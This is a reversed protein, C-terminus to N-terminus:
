PKDAKDQEALSANEPLALLEQVESESLARPAVRSDFLVVRKDGHNGRRDCLLIKKSLPDPNPPCPAYLYGIERDRVAPCRLEKKECRGADVLEQLNKAQWGLTQQDALYGSLGHLNRVCKQIRAQSMRQGRAPIASGGILVVLMALVVGSTTLTLRLLKRPSLDLMVLSVAWAVALMAPIALLAGMLALLTRAEEYRKGAFALSGFVMAAAVLGSGTAFFNLLFSYGMTRRRKPLETARQLAWRTLYTGGILWALVFFGLVGLEWTFLYDNLSALMM